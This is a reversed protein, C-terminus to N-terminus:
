FIHKPIELGLSDFSKKVATLLNQDGIEQSRGFARNMAWDKEAPIKALTLLSLIEQKSDEKQVAEELSETALEKCLELNQEEFAQLARELKSGGRKQQGALAVLMATIQDRLAKLEEVGIDDQLAKALRIGTNCHINAKQPKKVNLYAQAYWGHFRPQWLPYNQLATFIETEMEFLLELQNEKISQTTLEALEAINMHKAYSIKRQIEIKM